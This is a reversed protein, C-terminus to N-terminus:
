YTNYSKLRYLLAKTGAIAMYGGGPSFRVVRPYGMKNKAQLPFNQYATIKPLQIMRIADFVQGSSIALMENSPHFVTNTIETNLNMIAKEPKPFRSEFVKTRDYLNVVGQQSGTAIFQDNASVSISSGNICGEDTWRHCIKEVRIDFISVEGSDSHSFLYNSDKQSFSLATCQNEQKMTHILEKSFANFLHVEGFRGAVAMWKGCPSLEFLKLNTVNSPLRQSNSRGSLLDYVFYHRKPGGFILEEGNQSIRCCSITFDKMGVTHLKNNDQGDVSFISAIGFKGSVV